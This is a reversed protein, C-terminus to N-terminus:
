KSTTQGAAARLSAMQLHTCVTSKKLSFAESSSCVCRHTETDCMLTTYVCVPFIGGPLSRHHRRPAPPSQTHSATFLGSEATYEPITYSKKAM